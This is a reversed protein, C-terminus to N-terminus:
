QIDLKSFRNQSCLTLLFPCSLPSSPWNPHQYLPGFSFHPRSYPCSPTSHSSTISSPPLKKLHQFCSEQRLLTLLDISRTSCGFVKTLSRPACGDAFHQLDQSVMLSSLGDALRFTVVRRPFTSTDAGVARHQGTVADFGLDTLSNGQALALSLATTLAHGETGPSQPKWM